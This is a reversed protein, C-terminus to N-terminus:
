EKGGDLVEPKFNPRVVIAEEGFQKRFSQRIFDLSYSSAPKESLDADAAPIVDVTSADDRAWWPKDFYAHEGIWESMEPLNFEGVGTFMYSMGSKDDSTLEITGFQIAKGGFANMKSHLVEAILDDTPENPLMVINNGSTVRGDEDFLANIAWENDVCFMLCGDLANELWYKIKAIAVKIEMEYEEVKDEDLDEDDYLVEAQIKWTTPIMRNDTIRIAKFDLGLRVIFEPIEYEESM